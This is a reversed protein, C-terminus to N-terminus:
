AVWHTQKCRRQILEVAGNRSSSVTTATCYFNRNPAPVTAPDPCPTARTGTNTYSRLNRAPYAFFSILFDSVSGGGVCSGRGLTPIAIDYIAVEQWSLKVSLGGASALLVICYTYICYSAVRASRDLSSPLEAVISGAALPGAALASPDLSSPDM